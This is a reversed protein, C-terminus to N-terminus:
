VGLKERLYDSTLHKVVDLPELDDDFQIPGIERALKLAAANLTANRKGIGMLAGGMSARVSRGEDDFTKRIHEISELFFADDPADKKKSKSMEYLLGYGCGRRVPDKGHIWKSSLEVVFPTKSLTADCSSFVHTLLGAGLEEVQAEAQEQTMAEPDDILLAIVKGDYVDGKWLNMALDRDRGIQKALKRLQTLGIGFSKLEGASAGLKKWNEIGRDNKNAELLALVETTNM